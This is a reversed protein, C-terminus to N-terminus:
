EMWMSIIQLIKFKLMFFILLINITLILSLFYFNFCQVNFLDGDSLCHFNIQNSKFNHMAMLM